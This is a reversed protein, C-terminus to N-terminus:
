EPLKQTRCTKSVIYWLLCIKPYHVFTKGLLLEICDQQRRGKKAVERLNVEIYGNAALQERLSVAGRRRCLASYPSRTPPRSLPVM